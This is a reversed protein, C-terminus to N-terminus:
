FDPLIVYFPSSSPVIVYCGLLIWYVRKLSSTFGISIFHVEISGHSM